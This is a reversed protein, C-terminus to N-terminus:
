GLLYACSTFYVMELFMIIAHKTQMHRECQNYPTIEVNVHALSLLFVLPSFFLFQNIQFPDNNAFYERTWM